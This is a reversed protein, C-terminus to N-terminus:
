LSRRLAKKVVPLIHRVYRESGLDTFHIGDVTAEGDEGIMGESRVYYVNKEGMDVLREFLRRQAENKSKVEERIASDFVTHTFDPDEVFVVPVDPHADRIIRFFREAKEDIMEARANPVYDLIYLAPDPVSAMLEAIEYDLLANGSFGLNIVERDIARGLVATHAMGARSVCGGQLISTGYAVVPRDSAPSDVQPQGIEAGKDVGIELSTVGDYLSLYLMYERYEGDMNKVVVVDSTMGEPRASGAFRWDGEYLAYLDLGRIGTDCMHNMKTGYRSTWRVSISTSNSRFRIYLGASNRGLRWLAPRSVTECESPLREYRSLTNDDSKGYVPFASADYYEKDYAGASFASIVITVVFLYLRTMLYLIKFIVYTGGFIARLVRLYLLKKM